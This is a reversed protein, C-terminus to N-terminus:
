AGKAQKVQEPTLPGDAYKKSGRFAIYAAGIATVIQGAFLVWPNGTAEGINSITQGARTVDSQGAADPEFAKLTAACGAVGLALSLVCLALVVRRRTM